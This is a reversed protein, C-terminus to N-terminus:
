SALILDAGKEAIMITPANTNGRVIKPMISADIVRLGELGHVKLEPDTVALSDSGMKCTGVPHYMAEVTKRVHAEIDARETLRREPMVYGDFYPAFAKSEIISRAVTYGYVLTEMDYPDSLFRPDIHPHQHPDTSSLKLFGRSKAQLLTPGISIGHGKPRNFGNEMFYAPGFHIQLDPAPQDPSSRFFGGAEALNSTLPGKGRFWKFLNGLINPFRDMPDLSINQKNSAAVGSYPHDQYNQGVGALDHTVTIGMERLHEAPGVGSLLLLQPSNIAGATLLVEKKAKAQVKKGGQLYEIGVARKGEFLIRSALSKTHLTLNPRNLVPRLFGDAVSWRKGEKQTVQYLGFGDQKEGNFDPNRSYGLEEMADVFTHSLPNPQVPDSVILPGGTGHYSDAERLQGESKKFYPLVEKFSWGPCGMDAWDDYDQHNGRIYIMANISHCGGLAKGRPIFIQRQDANAQPVSDYSWDVKSRYLKFFAAPVKIYLHKDKAGAELLLVRNNPNASLRNALVCGASGAGVIIYDYNAAM